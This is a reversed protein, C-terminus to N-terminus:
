NQPYELIIQSKLEEPSHLRRSLIRTPVILPKTKPTKYRVVGRTTGILFTDDSQKFVSFVKQSPLGQEVDLRSSIWGFVPDEAFRVLGNKETACWVGNGDQALAIARVDFDTNIVI